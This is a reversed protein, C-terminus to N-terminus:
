LKGQQKLEYIVLGLMMLLFATSLAPVLTIQPLGNKYLDMGISGTLLLGGLGMLGAGIKWFKQYNGQHFWFVFALLVSIIVKGVEGTQNLSIIMLLMGIFMLFSRAFNELLSVGNRKQVFFIFGSIVFCFIVQAQTVNSRLFELFGSLM